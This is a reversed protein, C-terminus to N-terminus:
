NWVSKLLSVSKDSLVLPPLYVTGGKLKDQAPRDGAEKYMTQSMLHTNHPEHGLAHVFEHGAIVELVGTGADRVRAPTNILVKVPLRVDARILAGSGNTEARTRGHLATGQISADTQISIVPGTVGDAELAVNIHKKKFEANLHTVAHRCASAWESPLGKIKVAVRKVTPEQEGAKRESAV